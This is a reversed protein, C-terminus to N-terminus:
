VAGRGQETRVRQAWGKLLRSAVLAYFAGVAGHAGVILPITENTVGGVFAIGFGLGSVPFTALMTPAVWFSYYPPFLCLVAATAAAVYLAVATVAVAVPRRVALSRLGTLAM